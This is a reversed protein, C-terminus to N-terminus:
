ENNVASKPRILYYCTTTLFDKIWPLGEILGLQKRPTLGFKYRYIPNILYHQKEVITFGCNGALHEFQNISLRTDRIEDLEEMTRDSEGLRRLIASYVTRPLLHMYPIKALKSKTIQQHGGFPMRWPPFGLFVVGGPRLFTALQRLLAEKDPIHEIADKLTVVDFQGVWDASVNPDHIDGVVFKLRDDSVMDPLQENAFAIRSPSLDVGVGTAGAEVFAKMVGGDGTGVDLVRAGAIQIRTAVFPIVFDRANSDQQAFM